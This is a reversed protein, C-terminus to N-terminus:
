VSQTEGKRAAKCHRGTQTEILSVTEEASNGSLWNSTKNASYMTKAEVKDVTASPARSLAANVHGFAHEGNINAAGCSNSHALFAPSPSWYHGGPLQDASQGEMKELIKSCMRSFLSETELDQDSSTTVAKFAPGKDLEICPLACAATGNVVCRSDHRWERPTSYATACHLNLDLITLSPNEM